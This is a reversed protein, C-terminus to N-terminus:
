AVLHGARVPGPHAGRDARRASLRAARGPLDILLRWVDVASAEIIGTIAVTSM